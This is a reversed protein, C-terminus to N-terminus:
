VAGSAWHGCDSQVTAPGGPGACSSKRSKGPYALLMALALRERGLCLQRGPLLRVTVRAWARTHSHMPGAVMSARAAIRAIEPEGVSGEADTVYVWGSRDLYGCAASFEIEFSDVPLEIGSNTPGGVYSERM